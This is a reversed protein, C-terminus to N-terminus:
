AASVADIEILLEAGYLRSVEVLTVALAALPTVTPVGGLREVGRPIGHRRHMM